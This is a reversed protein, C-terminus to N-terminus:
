EDADREFLVTKISWEDEENYYGADKIGEPNANLVGFIAKRAALAALRALRLQGVYQSVKWAFRLDLIPRLDHMLTHHHKLTLNEKTFTSRYPPRGSTAVHDLVAEKMFVVLGDENRILADGKGVLLSNEQEPFHIDGWDYVRITRAAHIVQLRIAYDNTHYSDNQSYSYRDRDM